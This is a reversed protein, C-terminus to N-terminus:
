TFPTSLQSCLWLGIRRPLQNWPINFRLVFIIGTLTQRDELRKRGPNRFSRKKPVPILPQLLTRLENSVLLKPM